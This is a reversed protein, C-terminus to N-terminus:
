KSHLQKFFFNLPGSDQCRVKCPEQREEKAYEQVGKPNHLYLKVTRM